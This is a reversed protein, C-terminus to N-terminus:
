MRDILRHLAYIVGFSMAAGLPFAVAFKALSDLFPVGDMARFGMFMLSVLLNVIVAQYLLVKTSLM